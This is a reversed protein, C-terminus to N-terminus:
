FRKQPFQSLFASLFLGERQKPLQSSQQLLLIVICFKRTVGKIGGQFGRFGINCSLDTGFASLAGLGM